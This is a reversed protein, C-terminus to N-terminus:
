QIKVLHVQYIYIYGDNKQKQYEFFESIIEKSLRIKEKLPYDMYEKLQEKNMPKNHKFNDM